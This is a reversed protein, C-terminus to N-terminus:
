EALECLKVLMRQVSRKHVGLMEAVEAVSVGQNLLRVVRRLNEPQGKLLEELRERQAELKNTEEIAETRSRPQTRLPDNGTSTTRRANWFAAIPLSPRTDPWATSSLKCITLCGCQTVGLVHSFFSKWVM